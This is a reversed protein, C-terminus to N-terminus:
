LPIVSVPGTGDEGFDLILIFIGPWDTARPTLAAEVTVEAPLFLSLAAGRVSGVDTYVAQLVSARVVYNTVSLQLALGDTRTQATIGAELHSADHGDHAAVVQPLALVPLALTAILLRRRTLTLRRRQRM